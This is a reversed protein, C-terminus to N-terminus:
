QSPKRILTWVWGLLTAAFFPYAFFPLPKALANVPRGTFIQFSVIAFLVAAILGTCRVLLPFVKQLSLLTISVAWLFTGVGFSSINNDLNTACSSFVITEAIAFILFGGAVMDYGNRFYYITLLAGALILGASDIAWLINRVRDFPVFSGIVGLVCGLLLGTVSTIIIPKVKM